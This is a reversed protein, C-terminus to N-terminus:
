LTEIKRTHETKQPAHGCAYALKYAKSCEPCCCVGFGPYVRRSVDDTSSSREIALPPLIGVNVDGRSGKERVHTSGYEGCVIEHKDIACSVVDYWPLVDSTDRADRSCM